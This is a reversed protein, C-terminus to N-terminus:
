PPAATHREILAANTGPGELGEDGGDRNHPEQEDSLCPEHLESRRRM